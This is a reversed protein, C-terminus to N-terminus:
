QKKWTVMVFIQCYDCETFPSPLPEVRTTAVAGASIVLTVVVSLDVM